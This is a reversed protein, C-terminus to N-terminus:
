FSAEQSFMCLFLSFPDGYAHSLSINFVPDQKADFGFLLGNEKGALM